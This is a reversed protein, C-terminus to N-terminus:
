SYEEYEIESVDIKSMEVENRIREFGLHEILSLIYRMVMEPDEKLEKGTKEIMENNLEEFRDILMKEKNRTVIGVECICEMLVVMLTLKDSKLGRTKEPIEQVRGLGKYSLAQMMWREFLAMIANIDTNKEPPLDNKEILKSYLIQQQKEEEELLDIAMIGFLIQAAINDVWFVIQQLNQKEIMTLERINM